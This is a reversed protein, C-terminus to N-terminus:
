IPKYLCDNWDTWYKDKMRAHHDVLNQKEMFKRAFVNDKPCCSTFMSTFGFVVCDLETPQDGFMYAKTDLFTSLSDLDDFGMKEIEKESHRGMGQAYTQDRVMKYFVNTLMFDEVWSPM